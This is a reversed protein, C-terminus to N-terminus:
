APELAGILAAIRAPMGAERAAVERLGYLLKAAEDGDGGGAMPPESAASEMALNLAFWRKYLWGLDAELAAIQPAAAARLAPDLAALFRLNNRANCMFAWFGPVIGLGSAGPLWASLDGVFASLGRLGLQPAPSTLNALSGSLDALVQARPLPRDHDAVRRLHILYFPRERARREAFCAALARVPFDSRGFVADVVAYTDPQAGPGRVIMMHGEHRKGCFPHGQFVHFDIESIVPVRAAALRDLDAKLAAFADYSKHAFELGYCWALRDLFAAKDLPLARSFSSNLVPAADFGLGDPHRDYVFSHNFFLRDLSDIGLRARAIAEGTGMLCNPSFDAIRLDQFSTLTM